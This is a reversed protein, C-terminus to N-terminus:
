FCLQYDLQKLLLLINAMGKQFRTSKYPRARYPLAHLLQRIWFGPLSRDMVLAVNVFGYICQTNVTNANM